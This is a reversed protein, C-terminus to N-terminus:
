CHKPANLSFWPFATENLLEPFPRLTANRWLVVISSVIRPASLLLFGRTLRCCLTCDFFGWMKVSSCNQQFLLNSNALLLIRYKDESEIWLRSTCPICGSVRHCHKHRHTCKTPLVQHGLLPLCFVLACSKFSNKQLMAFFNVLKFRNNSDARKKLETCIKRGKGISAPQVLLCMSKETVLMFRFEIGTSSPVCTQRQKAKRLIKGKLSAILWYM